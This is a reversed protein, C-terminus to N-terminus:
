LMWSFPFLQKRRCAGCQFFDALLIRAANGRTVKLEADCDACRVHQSLVEDIATRIADSNARGLLLRYGNIARFKLASKPNREMPQIRDFLTMVVLTLYLLVTPLAGYLARYIEHDAPQSFIFNFNEPSTRIELRDVTVLHVAHQFLGYLGDPDAANFLISHLDEPRMVASLGTMDIAARMLERRKNGLVKQTIKNPDGSAFASIFGDEDAAMWTFYMLSDLLPKRLLNFGPIIKAKEFCRLAEYIHHACDSVMAMTITNLVVRRAEADRGLARLASVPDTQKALVEIREGERASALKFKVKHADAHEYEVLMRAFEDHLFFCYEHALRTDAPLWKLRSTPILLRM